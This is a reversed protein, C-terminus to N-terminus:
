VRGADLARCGYARNQNDNNAIRMTILVAIHAYIAPNLLLSSPKGRGNPHPFYATSNTTVNVNFNISEKVAASTFTGHRSLRRRGPSGALFDGSYPARTKNRRAIPSPRQLMGTFAGEGRMWARRGPWCSVVRRNVAPGSTAAIKKIELSM